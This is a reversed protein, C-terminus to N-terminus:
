LQYVNDRYKKDITIHYLNKKVIIDDEKFNNANRYVKVIVVNIVLLIIIMLVLAVVIWLISHNVKIIPDNLSEVIFNSVFNMSPHVHRDMDDNMLSVNIGIKFCNGFFYITDNNNSSNSIQLELVYSVDCIRSFRFIPDHGIIIFSLNVFPENPVAVVDFKNSDAFSISWSFTREIASEKFMFHLREDVCNHRYCKPNIDIDTARVNLWQTSHSVDILHIFGILVCIKMNSWIM